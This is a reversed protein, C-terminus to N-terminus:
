DIHSIEDLFEAVSRGQISLEFRVPLYRRFVLKKGRLGRLHKYMRRLSIAMNEALDRASIGSQPIIECINKQTSSLQELSLNRRTRFYFVRDSPSNNVILRRAALRSLTRSLSKMPATELLESRTKPGSLLHRLIQEEYGESHIPLQGSFDYKTVAAYVKRGYLTLRFHKGLKRILGAKLLPKLYQKITEKSHHFEHERLQKQLDEITSFRKGLVALIKLRRENKIATLLELGHDDDSLMRSTERLEKKVKWTECQDVCLIPSIANCGKCREEMLQLTQELSCGNDIMKKSIWLSDGKLEQRNTQESYSAYAMPAQHKRSSNKEPSFPSSRNKM